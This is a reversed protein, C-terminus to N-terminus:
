SRTMGGAYSGPHDALWAAYPSSRAVADLYSAMTFEHLAEVFSTDLGDPHWGAVTRWHLPVGAIPVAVIGPRPRFMAQCLVVADGTEVLDLCTVVDTEHLTRPSFGARACAAAFCDSFCGDGPNAAWRADALEALEVEAAGARPHDANLLVFVPDDAVEHWCLGPTVPPRADGCVGVLIYDLNGEAVMEALEDASWSVHTTVELDPCREALQHMLGGLLAGAASGLRLRVPVDGPDNALRAAEARLGSVAPLLVRARAVVLEGLPTARVGRRDREFLPGGLTKEIRRLQATLAPQALGLVASAKTISGAEAIAVVIRLHRLELEM